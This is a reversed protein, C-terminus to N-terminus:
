GLGAPAAMPPVRLPMTDYALAMSVRISRTCIATGSRGAESLDIISLRTHGLWVNRDHYQGQKDPGRHRTAAIAAAIRNTMDPVPRSPASAFGLIGCM